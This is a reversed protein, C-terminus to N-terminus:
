KFNWFDILVVKGKLADWGLGSKPANWVKAPLPRPQAPVPAPSQALAASAAFAGAVLGTAFLKYM